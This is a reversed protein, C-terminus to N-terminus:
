GASVLVDQGPEGGALDVLTVGFRAQSPLGSVEEAKGVWYAIGGGLFMKGIGARGGDV